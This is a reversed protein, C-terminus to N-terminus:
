QNQQGLVGDCSNGFYNEKLACFTTMKPKTEKGAVWSIIIIISGHVSRASRLFDALTVIFIRFFFRLNIGNESCNRVNTIYIHIACCPIYSLKTMMRM